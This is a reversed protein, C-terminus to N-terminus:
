ACGARGDDTKLGPSASRNTPTATTKGKNRELVLKDILQLAANRAAADLTLVEDISGPEIGATQQLVTKNVIPIDNFGILEDLFAQVAIENAANLSISLSQPGEAAQRAMALCPFRDFDPAEFELQGLATFDLASVGSAIRKPWALTHAIPTRMDPQGLQAVVAGDVYEVMSHVVSQPHIVFEILDPSIAFLWRAEILELGKNMMTASDVSIKQGMSWNPHACAEAPTIEAFTDLPRCRFPGGSGTLLIRSVGGAHSQAGNALCQFIANHESDVPLLTANHKAVAEMFLRGCMVLSEKNALLIKKGAEVAVMTPSLGAGGVIAAVVDDVDAHGAVFKLGEDGALVQTRDESGQHAQDLRAALKRAATDDRMVAFRPKIELCQQFMDDVNTNATLAFVCFDGQNRKIVDLTSVGISGTAGLITVQRKNQIM